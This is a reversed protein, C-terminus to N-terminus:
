SGSVDIKIIATDDSKILYKKKWEIAKTSIQKASYGNISNNGNFCFFEEMGDTSIYIRDKKLLEIRKFKLFELAGVQGNFVGYGYPHKSNNCIVNRIESATFEDKHSQILKTQSNTLLRMKNNRYLRVSCDGLYMFYFINDVIISIVGVTGPLFVDSGFKKNIKNIFKNSNVISDWLAERPNYKDMREELEHYVNEAFLKTIISAPSPNPYKGDIEDRTVGDLVIFILNEKDNILFDENPKNVRTSKTLSNSTQIYIKKM